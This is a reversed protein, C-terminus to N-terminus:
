LKKGIGRTKNERNRGMTTAFAMSQIDGVCQALLMIVELSPTRTTTVLEQKEEQAAIAYAPGLIPLPDVSLIQSQITTLVDDLGMLIDYVKKEERMSEMKKAVGCTCGCTFITIPNFAQLENWVSKLKGYYSSITTKEQQLLAIACKLEYICPAIGQTFREQFDSWVESVLTSMPQAVTSRKGEEILEFSAQIEVTPNEKPTHTVSKQQSEGMEVHVKANLTGQNDPDLVGIETKKAIGNIRRASEAEKM